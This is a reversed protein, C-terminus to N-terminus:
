AAGPPNYPPEFQSNYVPILRAAREHPKESESAFAQSTVWTTFGGAPAPRKGAPMASSPVSPARPAAGASPSHWREVGRVLEGLVRTTAAQDARIQEVMGAIPSVDIATSERVAEIGDLREGLHEVAAAIASVSESLEAVSGAGRARWLRRIIEAKGIGAASAAATIERMEDASFRVTFGQDM